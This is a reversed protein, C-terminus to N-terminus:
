FLNMGVGGYLTGDWPDITPSSSVNGGGSGGGSSNNNINNITDGQKIITTGANQNDRNLEQQRSPRSMPSLENQIIGNPVEIFGRGSGYGIKGSSNRILKQGQPGATIQSEKQINKPQTSEVEPIINGTTNGMIDYEPQSTAGYSPANKPMLNKVQDTVMNTLEEVNKQTNEDFPLAPYEGYIDKYTDRVISGIDIAVSGATGAGPVMSAAGSGLEMTAGTFDGAMARDGAFFLGAALGVLPVKKLISGLGKKAITKAVAEEIEAKTKRQIAEEAAEKAAGSLEKGTKKSVIKGSDQVEYKPTRKTPKTDPETPKPTSKTPKPTSQTEAIESARGKGLMSEAASYTLPAGILGIGIGAVAAYEKFIAINEESLGFGDLIRQREEDSGANIYALAAEAGLGLAAVSAIFLAIKGGKKAVTALKSPPKITKQTNLASDNGSRGGFINPILGGGNNGDNKEVINRPSSPKIDLGYENGFVDTKRYRRRRKNENNDDLNDGILLRELLENNNEYYSSSTKLINELLSRSKQTESLLKRQTIKIDSIDKSVISAEPASNALLSEAKTSPSLVNPKVAAAIDAKRQQLAALENTAATVAEGKGKSIIAKLIDSQDKAM